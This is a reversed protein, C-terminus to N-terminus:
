GRVNSANRKIIVTVNHEESIDNSNYVKRIHIIVYIPLTKTTRNIKRKVLLMEKEEYIIQAKELYKDRMHLTMIYTYDIM